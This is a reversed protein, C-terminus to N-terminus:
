HSLVMQAIVGTAIAVLLYDGGNQVWHHGHPPRSLRHGRWDHVVYHRSRFHPPVRSGRVWNHNPGAGYRGGHAYGPHRQMDQWGPRHPREHGSHVPPRSHSPRDYDYGPRSPSSYSPRDYGRQEPQAQALPATLGLTFAAAIALVSSIWRTM